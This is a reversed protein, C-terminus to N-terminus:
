VNMRVHSEWRLCGDTVDMQDVCTNSVGSILETERMRM